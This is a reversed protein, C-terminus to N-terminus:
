DRKAASAHESILRVIQQLQVPKTLHADFGAELAAQKDHTQGWGTVAILLRRAGSPTARMQRAVEYGNLEPMGIDLLAVDPQFEAGVKVADSGTHVARTDFGELQLMASWSQASDVNDDAILVKLTGLRGGADVTSSAQRATAGPPPGVLPLTVIFESGHGIGASRAEVSGDHLEILGKVLALGIGLGGESRELAPKLQSFMEFVRSLAESSLGIGSDEVTVVARDGEAHLSVRISGGADTYKAANTLLNSFVQALRVPDADVWLKEPSRQVTLSHRKADIMPRCTELAADITEQVSVVSRRLQLRGHTIRALELLDDLLRAMLDVQRTLADRAIAAVAPKQEARILLQAASYLAALPNRLEHALTALFEDKRKSEDQLQLQARVRDTVDYGEALVAPEGGGHTMPVYVFDVYRQEPPLGPMTQLLVPMERGVFPTGTVMVQRLLQPYPQDALEPMADELRKGILERYGILREYAPNALEFVLDEGRMVAMFSPTNQFIRQLEDRQLRMQEHAARWRLSEAEKLVRQAQRRLEALRTHAVIRARLERASFPKVLYDDAGVNLGEVRAEEGARASLLIVPIDVTASDQRLAQLLAIGDMRPMMVDSLVLHPPRARILELAEVGDYATVVDFQPRLLRSVYERMDANDDAVLIRQRDMSADVPAVEPAERRQAAQVSPPLENREDERWAGIEELFASVTTSPERLEPHTRVQQSPLHNSGFPIEITFTTGAGETSRVCISGGHLKVLESVLALGIGTGENSRGQAKPVRYFREFLHPLESEAVGTGSDRVELRAGSATERLSLAITGRWTFKFANSLLNFVIKEWMDRDVYVARSSPECQVEFRLGAKEIASRFSSALERTLQALDTPEYNAQIRGAELRAFDLLTNVLKLLRMSNRQVYTLLQREQPDLDARQLIEELPALMLTLPTRLEHSVNSFFTTKARDLEALMEARKHEDEVKRASAIAGSINGAVLRIFDLYHEDLARRPSIGAILYGPSTNGAAAFPLVVAQRIPEPWSGAHLPGFRELDVSSLVIAEADLKWGSQAGSEIELPAAPSEQPLGVRAALTLRSGDCPAYLLAFPLDTSYNALVEAAAPYVDAVRRANGGIQGLDRLARLRREGIVRGTTENVICFVGGVRGTEDRVPDYSVGFYTEELYGYREMFFPRDEAWFAEGTTLVGDFIEKLGARWLEDWSDRIPKGLADPHKAGFVPRYADNYLTILEEGWFLAIQAKSPLLISLASRLSQPWGEIPGLPTKSWDLARILEGM